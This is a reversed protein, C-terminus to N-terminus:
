CLDAIYEIWKNPDPFGGETRYWITGDEQHLWEYEADSYSAPAFRSPPENKPEHYEVSKGATPKSFPIKTGLSGSLSGLFGSAFSAFILQIVMESFDLGIVVLGIRVVIVGLSNIGGAITAGQIRTKCNKGIEHSTLVSLLILIMPLALVSTAVFFKGAIDDDFLENIGFLIIIGITLSVYIGLIRVFPFLENFSDDDADSM